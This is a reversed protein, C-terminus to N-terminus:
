LEKFGGVNILKGNEIKAHATILRWLRSNPDPSNGVCIEAVINHYILKEEYAIDGSGGIFTTDFKYILSGDEQVSITGMIPEVIDKTQWENKGQYKQPLFKDPINVYTFLGM